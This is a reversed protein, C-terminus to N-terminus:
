YMNPFYRIPWLFTPTSQLRMMERVYASNADQPSQINVACAEDYILFMGYILTTSHMIWILKRANKM